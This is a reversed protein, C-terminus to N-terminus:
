RNAPEGAKRNGQRLWAVIDAVDRPPLTKVLNDPMLSVPSVKIEEIDKRLVSETKAEAQKVIVSSASESALLGTVIRGDATAVIYTVYGSTIAGSPTLIDRLITEEARQFEASLDPGVAVGAGHAQHCVGCHQRFLQAGRAIDREGKLAAAYRAFLEPDDRGARDFLPVARQRLAADPNELLASRQVASLASAPLVQQEIAAAVDALRERRSFVANLIADRIQPTSAAVAALMGRTVESDNEVALEAVAALREDPTRQIDTIAQLTRAIRRREAPSEVKLIQVLAAAAAAVASDKEAALGRLAGVAPESLALQTASAFSSRLGKLCAVQVAKDNVKAVAVLASSLEVPDRGAAIMACLPTLLGGASGIDTPM